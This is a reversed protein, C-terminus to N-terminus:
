ILPVVGASSRAAIFSLPSSYFWSVTLLAHGLVRLECKGALHHLHIRELLIFHSRFSHYKDTRRARNKM